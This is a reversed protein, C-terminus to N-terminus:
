KASKREVERKARYYGHVPLLIWLISLGIQWKVTRTVGVELVAQNGMDNVFATIKTGVTFQRRSKWDYEAEGYQNMSPQGPEVRDSEYEMHNVTYKYRVHIYESDYKGWCCREEYFTVLAEVPQWDMTASQTRYKFLGDILFGFAVLFFTALAAKAVEPNVRIEINKAM